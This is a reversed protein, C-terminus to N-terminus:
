EEIDNGYVKLKNPGQKEGDDDSTAPPTTTDEETEPVTQVPGDQVPDDEESSEPEETTVPPLDQEVPPEEGAVPPTPPVEEIIDPLPTQIVEDNIIPPAEFGSPKYEFIIEITSRRQYGPCVLTERYCPQATEWPLVYSQENQRCYRYERVCEAENAEDEGVGMAFFATPAFRVGLSRMIEQVDADLANARKQSVEQNKAASGAADTRSITIASKVVIDHPMAGISKGHLRQLYYGLQEYILRKMELRETQSLRVSGSAFETEITFMYDRVPAQAQSASSIAFLIAAILFLSKM